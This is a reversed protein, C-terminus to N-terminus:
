KGRGRNLTKEVEKLNKYWKLVQRNLAEKDSTSSRLSRTIRTKLDM